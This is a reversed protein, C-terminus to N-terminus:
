NEQGGAKAAQPGFYSICMMTLDDFQPVGGVFQDVARDVTALLEQPTGDAKSNLADLTRETGFLKDNADTAEPVGDTYVFFKSGPELSIEYERYTINEMGGLVMGHKDKLLEFGGDPHKLMPYEHGANAATIIGSRVDLLGIWVTVFMEESNDCIQNNVKELVEKPSMGTLAYNQLMIKSMMMFLAAPIGKGSVDAIVLGLHDEDVFFFDYFDGGVEKAPRMSAYIDFEERDPFPPFVSPLMDAQIRRALDLETKLREREATIATNEKLYQKLRIDMEEFSRALAEIEDGTHVDVSFPTDKDLDEVLSSSAKKLLVIPRIIRGQLIFYYIVICAVLIVSIALAVNLCMKLISVIMDALDIDVGVVAVTDGQFDIIPALATGLLENNNNRNVAMSGDWTRNMVAMMSEKEGDAYSDHDLPHAQQELAAVVEDTLETQEPDLHVADWIYTMDEENPVVVYIYRLNAYSVSTELLAWVKLYGEDSEIATVVKEREEKSMDPRDMKLYEKIDDASVNSSLMNAYSYAYEAYLKLSNEFLQYAAAISTGIIMLVAMLVMSLIVRRTISRQKRKKTKKGM